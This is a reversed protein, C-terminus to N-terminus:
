STIRKFFLIKSNTILKFSSETVNEKWETIMSRQFVIILWVYPSMPPSYCNLHNISLKIHM